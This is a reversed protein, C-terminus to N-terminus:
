FIGVFYTSNIHGHVSKSFQPVSLNLSKNLIPGRLSELKTLTIRYCVNLYM